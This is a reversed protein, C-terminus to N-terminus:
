IQYALGEQWFSSNAKTCCDKWFTISFAIKSLVQRAINRECLNHLGFHLHNNISKGIPQDDKACCTTRGICCDYGGCYFLPSCSLTVLYQFLLWWYQSTEMLDKGTSEFYTTPFPISPYYVMHHPFDGWSIINYLPCPHLFHWQSHPQPVRFRYWLFKFWSIFTHVKISPVTGFNM